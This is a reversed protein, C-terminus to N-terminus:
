AARFEGAPYIRLLGTGPGAIAVMEELRAGMLQCALRSPANGSVMGVVRWEYGNMSALVRFDEAEGPMAPLAAAVPVAAVGALFARRHM